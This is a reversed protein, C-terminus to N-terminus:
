RRRAWTSAGLIVIIALLAGGTVMPGAGAVHICSDLYRSLGIGLLAVGILGLGVLALAWVLRQGRREVEVALMTVYCRLAGMAQTIARQVHELPGAARDDGDAM